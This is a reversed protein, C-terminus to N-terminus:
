LCSRRINDVLLEQYQRCAAGGSITEPKEVPKRGYFKGGM